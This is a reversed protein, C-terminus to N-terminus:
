TEHYTKATIQDYNEVRAQDDIKEKQFEGIREVLPLINELM